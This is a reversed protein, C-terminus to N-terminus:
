NSLIKCEKVGCFSFKPQLCLLLFFQNVANMFDTFFPEILNALTTGSDFIVELNSGSSSTLATSSSINVGQVGINVLVATYHPRCERLMSRTPPIINTSQNNLENFL